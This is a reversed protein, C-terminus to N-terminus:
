PSLREGLGSLLAELGTEAEEAQSLAECAYTIFADGVLLDFAARRNRGPSELARGLAAEGRAALDGPGTTPGEGEELLLPLLVRPVSPDRGRLWVELILGAPNGGDRPESTV